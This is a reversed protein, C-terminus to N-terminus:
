LHHPSPIPTDHIIYEEHIEIDYNQSRDEFM